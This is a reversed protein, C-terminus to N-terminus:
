DRRQENHTQAAAFFQRASREYLHTVKGALLCFIAIKKM